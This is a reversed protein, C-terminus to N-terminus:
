RDREPSGARVPMRVKVDVPSDVLSVFVEFPRHASESTTSVLLTYDGPLLKPFRFGGKGDAVATLTTGRLAITAHAVPRGTASDTLTGSLGVPTHAWLTDAGRAIFSLQGGAVRVERVYTEDVSTM